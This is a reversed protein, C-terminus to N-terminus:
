SRAAQLASEVEAERSTSLPVLPLRLENAIGRLRHVAYKVPIPNTETFLAAFLPALTEQLSDDLEACLRAMLDPVVNAAVSVVGKAGQRMMAITTADDGSLVDLGTTRALRGAREIDHTADKLATINPVESLRQITTEELTVGTRGPVDYLMVPTDGAAEAMAKFHAVMGEQPPKNYYPTVALIGDAGWGVAARTLEVSQATSNSGTGTMVPIRGSCVELARKTLIGKEEAHLTASEGTTGAVVIGSTGQEVHWACLDAFADLDLEGDRFPTVIAVLSGSFRVV